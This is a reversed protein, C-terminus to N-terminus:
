NYHRIPIPFPKGSHSQIIKGNRTRFSMRFIIETWEENYGDLIGNLLTQKM